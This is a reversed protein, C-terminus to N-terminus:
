AKPPTGPKTPKEVANVDLLPIPAGYVYKVRELFTAFTEDDCPTVPLPPTAGVFVAREFRDELYRARIQGGDVTVLVLQEPSSTNHIIIMNGGETIEIPKPAPTAGPLEAPIGENRHQDRWWDYEFHWPEDRALATQFWGYENLLWVVREDTDIANGSQHISPGGPPDPPLAFSAGPVGNLYDQRFKNQQDWTRGAESVQWLHGVRADLRWLSYAAGDDLWGRGGRLDVAM